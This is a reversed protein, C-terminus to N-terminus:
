KEGERAKWVDMLFEQFDEAESSVELIKNIYFREDKISLPVGKFAEWAVIPSANPLTVLDVSRKLQRELELWLRDIDADHKHTDDGEPWVGIDFDSETGARGKAQSGFLFALKVWNKEKFLQQLSDVVQKDMNTLGKQQLLIKKRPNSGRRSSQAGRSQETGQAQRLVRRLREIM